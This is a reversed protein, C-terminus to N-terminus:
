INCNTVKVDIIQYLIERPFSHGMGDLILLEARPISSAIDKSAEINYFPDESGNIVVPPVKLATIYPKINGSVSTSALQRAIGDPYYSRDFEKTLYIRSHDEDFPFSGNILRDRKVM